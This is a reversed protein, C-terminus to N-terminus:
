CGAATFKDALWGVPYQALAGGLVFAALFFAIQDIMLGVEQGYIPGVMRFSAGSLASRHCGGGWPAFVAVFRPAPASRLTDQAPKRADDDAAAAHRLM